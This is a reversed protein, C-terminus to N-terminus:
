MIRTHLIVAQLLRVANDVSELLYTSKEITRTPLGKQVLSSYQKTPAPADGVSITRQRAGVLAPWFQGSNLPVSEVKVANFLVVLM